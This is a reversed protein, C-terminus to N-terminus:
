NLFLADFSFITSFRFGNSVLILSQFDFNVTPKEFLYEFHLPHCFHYGHNLDM